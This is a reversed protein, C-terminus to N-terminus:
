RIQSPSPSPRKQSESRMLLDAVENPDSVMCDHCSDLTVYHWAPDSRAMAKSADFVRLTAGTCAIYTKAVGNGIPNKFEVRQLYTSLPHDTVRRNVWAIDDDKTLGLMRATDFPPTFQMVPVEGSISATYALAARMRESAVEPQRDAWSENNSPIQADLYILRRLPGPMRDAVMSIVIGAYSHGVLIVDDLEEYKLLNMVDTCHTDLDTDLALLHRREGLGTLTPTWVAHGALRLRSAVRGWCWGGHASGHVLVYTNGAAGPSGTQGFEVNAM